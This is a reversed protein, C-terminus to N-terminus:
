KVGAQEELQGPVIDDAWPAWDEGLNNLITTLTPDLILRCYAVFSGAITSYAAPVLSSLQLGAPYALEFEAEKLSASVVTGTRGQMKNKIPKQSNLFQCCVNVITGRYCGVYREM